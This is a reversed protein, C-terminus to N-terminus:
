SLHSQSAEVIVRDNNFNEDDSSSFSREEEEKEVESNLGADADNLIDDAEMSVDVSKSFATAGQLFQPCMKATFSSFIAEVKKHRM